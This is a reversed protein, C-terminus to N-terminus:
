MSIIIVKKPRKQNVKVHWSLNQWYFITILWRDFQLIKSFHTQGWVQADWRVNVERGCGVGCKSFGGGGGNGMKPWETYADEEGEGHAIRLKRAINERCILRPRPQPKRSAVFAVQFYRDFTAPVRFTLCDVISSSYTHTHTANYSHLPFLAVPSLHFTM